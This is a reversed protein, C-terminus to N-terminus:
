RTPRAQRYPWPVGDVARVRPMSENALTSLYWVWGERELHIMYGNYFPVPVLASRVAPRALLASLPMVSPHPPVPADRLTSARGQDIYVRPRGTGEVSVWLGVPGEARQSLQAQQRLAEARAPSVFRYRVRAEGDDQVNVTGDPRLRSVDIRWLRADEAWAQALALAWPAAAVPDLASYGGAPAAADIDHHGPPLARLTAPTAMASAGRAPSVDVTRSLAVQTAKWGLYAAIVGPVVTVGLILLTFVAIALTVPRSLKRTTASGTSPHVTTTPATATGSDHVLGCFRCTQQPQSSEPLPAGCGQCRRARM